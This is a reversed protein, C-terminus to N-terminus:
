EERMGRLKMLKTRLSRDRAAASELRKVLQTLAEALTELFRHRDRDDRFIRRRENGRATVHYVVGAFEVRIPRAMTVM